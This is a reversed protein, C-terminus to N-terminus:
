FKSRTDGFIMAPALGIAFFEEISRDCHITDTQVDSRGDCGEKGRDNSSM